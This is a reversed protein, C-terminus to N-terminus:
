NMPYNEEAEKNENAKLDPRAPKQIWHCFAQAPTGLNM